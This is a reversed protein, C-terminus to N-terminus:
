SDLIRRRRNERELGESVNFGWSRGNVRTWGRGFRLELAGPMGTM